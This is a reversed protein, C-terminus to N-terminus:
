GTIDSIVCRALRNDIKSNRFLWNILVPDTYFEEAFVKGEVLLLVYGLELRISHDDDSQIDMRTRDMQYNELDTGYVEEYYDINPNRDAGLISRLVEYFGTINESFVSTKLTAQVKTDMTQLDFLSVDIRENLKSVWEENTLPQKSTATFEHIIGLTYNTAMKKAGKRM